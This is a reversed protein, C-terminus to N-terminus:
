AWAGMVESISRVDNTSIDSDLQVITNPSSWPQSSGEILGIKDILVKDNTSGTGTTLGISLYVCTSSTTFNISVTTWSSSATVATSSGSASAGKATVNTGVLSWTRTGVANKANMIITYTTSPKVPIGGHIGVAQLTGLSVGAAATGTATLELCAAGESFDSTIRAITTGSSAVWGSSDTEITAQNTSLLNGGYAKTFGVKQDLQGQTHERMGDIATWDTSSSGLNGIVTTSPLTVTGTFTPGATYAVTGSANPFTVTRAATPATISFTTSFSSGQFILSPAAGNNITTTSTTTLSTLSSLGTVSLTTGVYLAKAIGVGGATTFSGTTSSSSDTTTSVSVGLSYGVRLISGAATSTGMHIGITDDGSIGSSGAFYSIGYDPYGAGPSIADDFSWIRNRGNANIGSAVFGSNQSSAIQGGAYINTGVYLKKAVGLGGATKFAGTTSSSSDTADTGVLVPLTVTGTFTPSSLPAKANLATQLDTQDSLTGTITGWTAGGAASALPGVTIGNIRVYAGATTTWFDGNTPSSPATGHPLRLTAASATSAAGVITSGAELGNKVKFNKDVTTM